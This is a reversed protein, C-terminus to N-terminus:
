GTPSKVTFRVAAETAFGASKVEAVMVTGPVVTEMVWVAVVTGILVVACNVAVTVLSGPFLPTVHATDQGVVGGDDHPETEGVVVNLPIAVV